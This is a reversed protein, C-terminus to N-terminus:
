KALQEDAFSGSSDERTAKDFGFSVEALAVIGRVRGGALRRSVSNQEARGAVSVNVKDISIV